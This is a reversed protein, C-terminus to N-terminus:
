RLTRLCLCSSQALEMSSFVMAVDDYLDYTLIIINPFKYKQPMIKITMPNLYIQLLKRILFYRLIHGYQFTVLDFFYETKYIYIYQGKKYM